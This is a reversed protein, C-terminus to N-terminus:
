LALVCLPLLGGGVAILVWDLTTMVVLQKWIAAWEQGDAIHGPISYLHM